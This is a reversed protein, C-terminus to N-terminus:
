NADDIRLRRVGVFRQAWYRTSWREVRVVGRSSPAHVFQDPGIVIGVHSAGRATTSFFLLDGPRAAERDIKAGLRYQDHVERPLRVGYRAFVFQTFGSCDFGDLTSGGNRYPVGRLALATRVLAERTHDDAPVEPFPAKRGPSPFPQPVATTGSSACASLLATLVAVLLRASRHSSRM